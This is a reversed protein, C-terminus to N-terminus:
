YFGIQKKENIPGGYKGGFPLSNMAWKCLFYEILFIFSWWFITFYFKSM